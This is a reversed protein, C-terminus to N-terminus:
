SGEVEDNIIVCFVAVYVYICCIPGDVTWAILKGITKIANV